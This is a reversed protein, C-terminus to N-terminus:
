VSLDNSIKSKTLHWHTKSFCFLILNKVTKIVGVPFFIMKNKKKNKKIGKEFDSGLDSLM